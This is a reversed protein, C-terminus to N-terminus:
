NFCPANEAAREPRLGLHACVICCPLLVVCDAVLLHHPEAPKGWNVSPLKCGLVFCHQHFDAGSGNRRRNLLLCQSMEPMQNPHKRSVKREFLEPYTWNFTSGLFCQPFFVDWRGQSYMSICLSTSSSTAPSVSVQAVRGNCAELLKGLFKLLVWNTYFM